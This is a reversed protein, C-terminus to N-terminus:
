DDIFKGELIEPHFLMLQFDDPYSDAVFTMFNDATTYTMTEGRDNSIFFDSRNSSRYRGVHWVSHKANFSARFIVNSEIFEYHIAILQGPYVINLKDFNEDSSVRRVMYM